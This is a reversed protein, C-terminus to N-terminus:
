DLKELKSQLREITSQIAKKEQERASEVMSTVIDKVKELEKASLDKYTKKLLLSKSTIESSIVEKNPRGAKRGRKKSPVSKKKKLEEATAPRYAVEGKDNTLLNGAEDKVWVSESPPRGPKKTNKVAKYEM